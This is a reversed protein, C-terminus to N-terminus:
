AGNLTDKSSCPGGCCSGLVGAFEHILEAVAERDVSYCSCQRQQEVVILGAQLLVKLHQSVTSQALGMAPVVDKVCTEGQMSIERLLRLRIPHALAALRSAIQDANVDQRPEADRSGLSLRSTSSEKM